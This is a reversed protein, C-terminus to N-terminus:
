VRVEEERAPENKITATLEETVAVEALDIVEIAEGDLQMVGCVHAAAGEPAPLLESRLMQCEGSVPIATWEEGAFNRRTILCYKLTPEELGLLAPALDWVPLIEGRRVLVGVLSPTEHPFLHVSGTRSLEVVDAAPLAFRRGCLPFVVFSIQVGQSESVM